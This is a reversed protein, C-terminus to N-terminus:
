IAARRAANARGPPRSDVRDPSFHPWSGRARLRPRNQSQAATPTIAINPVIENPAPGSTQGAHRPLRRAAPQASPRAARARHERDGGSDGRGSEREHEAAGPREDGPQQGREHESHHAAAALAEQERSGECEGEGEHDRQALDVDREHDREGRRQEHDRREDAPRGCRSAAPAIVPDPRASNATPAGSGPIESVSAPAISISASPRRRRRSAAATLAHGFGLQERERGRPEVGREAEDQVAELVARRHQAEVRGLQRDAAVIGFVQVAARERGADVGGGPIGDDVLAAPSQTITSM